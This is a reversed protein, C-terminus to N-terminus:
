VTARAKGSAFPHRATPASKVIIATEDHQAIWRVAQTALHVPIPASRLRATAPIMSCGTPLARRTLQINAMSVQSHQTTTPKAPLSPPTPITRRAHSARAAAIMPDQDRMVVAVEAVIAGHAANTLLVTTQVPRPLRQIVLMSVPRSIVTSAPRATTLSLHPGRRIPQVKWERLVSFTPGARSAHSAHSVRHALLGLKCKEQGTRHARYRKSHNGTPMQKFRNHIPRRAMQRPPALPANSARHGRQVDTRVARLDILARHDHM